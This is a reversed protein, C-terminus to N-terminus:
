AATKDFRQLFGELSAEIWANAQFQVANMASGSFALGTAAVYSIDRIGIVGLAANLYPRFFDPQKPPDRFMAGGSSVAVLTPRDGLLGKKGEPTNHFTVGNRVVMDIWLKLSAPVTFNHVPSAIVVLDAWKLEAILQDSVALAAGYRAQAEDRPLQVSEAYEASMAPLPEAGINREILEVPRGSRATIADVLHRGLAGSTANANAQRPSCEILLMKM